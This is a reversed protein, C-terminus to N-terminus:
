VKSIESNIVSIKETEQQQKGFEFKIVVSKYKTDHPFKIKILNAKLYNNSKSKM